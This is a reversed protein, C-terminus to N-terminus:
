SATASPTLKCLRARLPKEAIRSRCPRGGISSHLKPTLVGPRLSTKVSQTTPLASAGVLTMLASLRSPEAVTKFRPSTVSIMCGKRTTPSSRLPMDASSATSMVSASARSNNRRYPVSTSSAQIASCRHCGEGIPHFPSPGPFQCNETSGTGDPTRMKAVSGPAFGAM